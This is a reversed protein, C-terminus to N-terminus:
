RRARNNEIKTVTWGGGRGHRARDLRQQAHPSKNADYGAFYIAEADHPFPSAVIARPAIMPLSSLAPVRRLTYRGEADRILYWAGSELRGVENDM